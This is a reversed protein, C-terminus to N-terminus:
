SEYVAEFYHSLERAMERVSAIATAYDMRVPGVVGVSGLNRHGLGYNAGIVSVGHLEPRPNERGIWVFISHQDLASRMMSLMTARRELAAILTELQPLDDGAADSLLRSTGEIYLDNAPHQELETFAPSLKRLFGAEAPGLEPASLRNLIIRAGVEMGILSENLYSSSWEVLGPDVESEFEITKKTVSGASTIVVIMATAPRLRLVEVRHITDTDVPPATVLAVLETVEALVTTTERMTEDIEHRLRSPELGISDPQPLQKSALLGEVYDRYGRETPVRGASTHPHTLYGSSELNALEARVTSSGWTIQPLQSLARSSVPRGEELYSDVALRLIMEQRQSLM